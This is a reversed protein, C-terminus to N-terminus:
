VRAAQMEQRTPLVLEASGMPAFYRDVMADTVDEVRAPRWRPANDKEIIKARVGEFFDHDELARCALRYDLMLTQRLGRVKAERIHRLTLKLSLPSARELEALASEAFAKGAYKESRLRAMIDEVTAGAFCRAIVERHPAIEGEGPDEHLGALLPDVTQADALGARIEEFRAAGVCHTALGLRYADARGIARGTLGLFVGVEDPLQSLVFSVGDDPFLGIATEPMAFRYREGAVRHTNYVSLGVGSGMVVGDILSVTPKSFCEMLWCFGYEDWISRRAETPQERAWTVIERVDGGASFAKPSASQIIVAYTNADRAIRPIAAGIRARMATTLANLAQPRDLTVLVSAGKQEITVDHAAETAKGAGGPM